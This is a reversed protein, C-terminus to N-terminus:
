CSSVDLRGTARAPFISKALPGPAGIRCSGCFPVSMLMVPTWIFAEGPEPSSTAEGYVRKAAIGAACPNYSGAASFSAQPRAIIAERFFSDLWSITTCASVARRRRSCRPAMPASSPVPSPAPMRSWMGSANRRPAVFKGRGAAPVYATPMPNRGASVLSRSNAWDSSSPRAASSFRATRPQRSTGTSAETSPAEARLTM